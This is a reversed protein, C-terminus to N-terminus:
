PTLGMRGQDKGLQAIEEELRRLEGEMGLLYDFIGVMEDWLVGDEDLDLNQSLYGITTNKPLICDGSDM